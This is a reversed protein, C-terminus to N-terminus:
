KIVNKELMERNVEVGLGPKEISKVWGKEVKIPEELVQFQDPFFPFELWECRSSLVFHLNAALQLGYGFTHPILRVGKVEAMADIKKLQLFGGSRNVDAQIIDYCGRSLIDEFRFIGMDNEGGAIEVPSQKRLEALGNLNDSPLPEEFWTIEYKDCIKAIKIADHVNEYGSNADLMFKLDPFADRVAKILEEDKQIGQGIRLKVASFGGLDLASQVAGIAAKPKYTKFLSAYARVKQKMGGLLKYIPQRTAKGIIDWLAVEIASTVQPIGFMIRNSTHYITHYIDEVMFPDKKVILKAIAEDVLLKAGANSLNWHALGWGDIDEDTKINIFLGSAKLFPMSGIKFKFDLVMLHTNVETIIM